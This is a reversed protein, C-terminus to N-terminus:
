ALLATGAGESTCNSSDIQFHSSGGALCGAGFVHAISSVHDASAPFLGSVVPLSHSSGSCSVQVQVVVVVM